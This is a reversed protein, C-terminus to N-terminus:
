EHKLNTQIYNFFEEQKEIWIYNRWSSKAAILTTWSWAFPDLVIEGPKTSLEILKQCFEVSKENGHLNKTKSNAKRNSFMQLFSPYCYTYEKPNKNRKDKLWSESTPIWDVENFKKAKGKACYIVLQNDFKFNNPTYSWPTYSRTALLNYFRFGAEKVWSLWKDAELTPIFIYCHSGDKLVKYMGKLWEIYHSFVYEKSDDYKKGKAFNVWYPVDTVICDITNEWIFNEKWLYDLCDWHYVINAKM